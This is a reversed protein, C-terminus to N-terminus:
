PLRASSTRTPTLERNINAELQEAPDASSQAPAHRSPLASNVSETVRSLYKSAEAKKAAVEAAPPVDLPDEWLRWEGTEPSLPQVGVRLHQLCLPLKGQHLVSGHILGEAYFSLRDYGKTAKFMMLWLRKQEIMDDINRSQSNYQGIECCKDLIEKTPQSAWEGSNIKSRITAKSTLSGDINSLQRFWRTPAGLQHPPLRMALADEAGLVFPLQIKEDWPSFVAVLKTSRPNLSVKDDHRRHLYGEILGICKTRHFPIRYDLKSLAAEIDVYGYVGEELHVDQMLNCHMYGYHYYYALNNVVQQPGGNFIRVAVIPRAEGNARTFDVSPVTVCSASRITATGHTKDYQANFDAQLLM